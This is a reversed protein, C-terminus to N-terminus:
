SGGTAIPAKWRPFSTLRMNLQERTPRQKLLFMRGSKERKRTEMMEFTETHDLIMDGICETWKTDQPHAARFAFAYNVLSSM